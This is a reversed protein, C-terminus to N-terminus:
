IQTTRGLEVTRKKDHAEIVCNEKQKNYTLEYIEYEFNENKLPSKKHIEGVGVIIKGRKKYTFKVRKNGLQAEIFVQMNKTTVKLDNVHETM